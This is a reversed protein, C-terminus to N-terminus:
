LLSGPLHGSQFWISSWGIRGEGDQDTKSRRITVVLGDRTIAVADHDLGILESRRFGGAFGMLLLAGDRTGMLSEPLRDIMRKLEDVMVPTKAAAATGKTRRIGAMVLRVKASKTPTEFGAIQHAQSIASIRRTLTSPKHSPPAISSQSEM